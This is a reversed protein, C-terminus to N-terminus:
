HHIHLVPNSHAGGVELSQSQIPTAQVKPLETCISVLSCSLTDDSIYEAM